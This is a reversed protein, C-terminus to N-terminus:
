SGERYARLNEKFESLCAEILPIDSPDFWTVNVQKGQRKSYVRKSISLSDREPRGGSAPFRFLAMQVSGSSATVVPKNKPSEASENKEVM